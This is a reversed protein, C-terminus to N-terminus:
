FIKEIGVLKKKMRQAEGKARSEAELAQQMGDLARQHTKRSFDFIQLGSMGVNEAIHKVMNISVCLRRSKGSPPLSDLFQLVGLIARPCPNCKALNKNLFVPFKTSFHTFSVCYFPALEERWFLFIGIKGEKRPWLKKSPGQNEVQPLPMWGMGWGGGM